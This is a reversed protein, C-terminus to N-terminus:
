SILTRLTSIIDVNKGTKTLEKREFTNFAGDSFVVYYEDVDKEVNYLVQTVIGNCLFNCNVIDGIYIKEKELKEEYEMVKFSVINVDNNKIIASVDSYGFIEERQDDTLNILRRAVEWALEMNEKMQSM